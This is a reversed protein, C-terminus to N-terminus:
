GGQAGDLLRKNEAELEAVRAQLKGIAQTVDAADFRQTIHQPCNWDFAEIEIEAVRDVRARYDPLAVAALLAPAAAGAASMRIRGLLKLRRRNPYDVVIISVRDDGLANGASVLQRNGRFDAYALTRADLVQLFGAPGGRHQVYPRGDADATSLFFTDIADLFQRLNDTIETAFEKAAFSARSGLREQEAKVSSSFLVDEPNTM